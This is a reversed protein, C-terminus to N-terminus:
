RNLLFTILSLMSLLSRVAHLRNWKSLLEHAQQSSKDLDPALLKKNTPLIQILTFPVVLALLAGGVLWWFNAGNLWAVISSVFSVTALLVQMQTARRYSPGFEKVAIETGCEMRAPHEVLNVYIAAGAFLSCCFTSLIKATIQIVEM